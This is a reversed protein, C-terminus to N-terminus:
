KLIELSKVSKERVKSLKWVKSIAEIHERLLWEWRSLNWINYLINISQLTLKYFLMWVM